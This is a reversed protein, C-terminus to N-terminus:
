SRILKKKDRFGKVKNVVVEWSLTWSAVTISPAM